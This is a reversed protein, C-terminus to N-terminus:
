QKTLEAEPFVFTEESDPDKVSVIQINKSPYEKLYKKMYDNSDYKEVIDFQSVPLSSIVVYEYAQEDVVVDGPAFTTEVVDFEYYEKTIHRYPGWHASRLIRDVGYGDLDKKMEPDKAFTSQFLNKFEKFVNLDSGSMVYRNMSGRTSSLARNTNLTKETAKVKTLLEKKQQYSLEDYKKMQVIIDEDVLRKPTHRHFDHIHKM